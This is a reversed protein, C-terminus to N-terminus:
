MGMEDVESEEYRNVFLDVFNLKANPSNLLVLCNDDCYRKLRDFLEFLDM